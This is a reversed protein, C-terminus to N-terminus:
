FIHCGGCMPKYILQNVRANNQDESETPFVLNPSSDNPHCVM